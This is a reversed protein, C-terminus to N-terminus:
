STSRLRRAGSFPIRAAARASPRGAGCTSTPTRVPSVELAPRALISRLGGCRSIVVGSDSYM